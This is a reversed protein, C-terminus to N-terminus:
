ILMLNSNTVSARIQQTSPALTSLVLLFLYSCDPKMPVCATSNMCCSMYILTPMVFPLHVPSLFHIWSDLASGRLVVPHADLCLISAPTDNGGNSDVSRRTDARLWPSNCLRENRLAETEEHM